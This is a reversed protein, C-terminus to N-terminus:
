KAILDHTPVLIPILSYVIYCPIQGFISSICSRHFSHSPSMTTYGYSILFDRLIMPEFKYLFDPSNDQNQFLHHDSKTTMLFFLTLSKLFFNDARELLNPRTININQPELKSNGDASTAPMAVSVWLMWSGGQIRQWRFRTWVSQFLKVQWM